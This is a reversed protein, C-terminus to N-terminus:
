VDQVRAMASIQNHLDFIFTRLKNADDNNKSRIAQELKLVADGMSNVLQEVFEIDM